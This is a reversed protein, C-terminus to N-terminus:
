SISMYVMGCSQIEIPLYADSFGDCYVYIYLDLEVPRGPKSSHGVLVGSRINVIYKWVSGTGPVHPGDSKTDDATSASVMTICLGWLPM